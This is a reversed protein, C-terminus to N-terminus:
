YRRRLCQVILDHEEAFRQAKKAAEELTGSIKLRGGDMDGKDPESRFHAMWLLEKGRPYQEIM